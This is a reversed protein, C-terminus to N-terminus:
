EHGVRLSVLKGERPGLVKSHLEFGGPQPQKLFPKGTAADKFEALKADGDNMSTAAALLMQWRTRAHWDVFGDYRVARTIYPLLVNKSATTETYTRDHFAQIEAVFRDYPLGCIRDLEDLLTAREELLVRTSRSKVQVRLQEFGKDNKDPVDFVETIAPDDPSLHRELWPTITRKEFLIYARADIRAPVGALSELLRRRAEVPMAPLEAALADVVWAEIWSEVMVGVEAAPQAAHRSMRLLAVCDDVGENWRQQAFDARVKLVGLRALQRLRALYLVLGGPGDEEFDVEWRCESMGAGRRMLTLSSRSAAILRRAAAANPSITAFEAEAKALDDTLQPLAAIAQWYQLAANSTRPLEAATTTAAMALLAIAIGFLIFRSKPLM